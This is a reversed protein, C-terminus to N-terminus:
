QLRWTSGNRERLANYRMEMWKGLAEEGEPFARDAEQIKPMAIALRQKSLVIRLFLVIDPFTRNEARM